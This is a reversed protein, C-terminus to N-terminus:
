VLFDGIVQLEAHISYGNVAGIDHLREADMLRGFEDDVCDAITEDVDRLEMEGQVPGRENQSLETPAEERVWVWRNDLPKVTNIRISKKKLNRESPRWLSGAQPAGGLCLQGQGAPEFPSAPFSEKRFCLESRHLALSRTATHWRQRACWGM